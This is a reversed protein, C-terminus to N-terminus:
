RDRFKFPYLVKLEASKSDVFYHPPIGQRTALGHTGAFHELVGTVSVLEGGRSADNRGQLWFFQGDPMLIQDYAKAWGNYVGVLTVKQGVVNKLDIKKSHEVGVIKEDTLVLTLTDGTQLRYCLLCNTAGFVRDPRGFRSEIAQRLLMKEKHQEQALSVGLRLMVLVVPFIRVM